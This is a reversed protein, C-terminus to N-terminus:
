ALAYAAGEPGGGVLPYVAGGPGGGEPSYLAGGPGGGTGSRDRGNDCPNESGGTTEM